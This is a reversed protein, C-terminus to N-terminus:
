VQIMKLWTLLVHIDYYISIIRIVYIRTLPKNITNLFKDVYHIYSNTTNKSYNFYFMKSKLNQLFKLKNEQLM